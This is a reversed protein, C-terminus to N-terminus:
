SSTSQGEVILVVERAWDEDWYPSDQIEALRKKEWHRVNREWCAVKEDKVLSGLMSKERQVVKLIEAPSVVKLNNCMKAPLVGAMSLMAALRVRIRRLANRMQEQSAVPDGKLYRLIPSRVDERRVISETKSRRYMEEMVKHAVDALTVVCDLLEHFVNFIQTPYVRCPPFPPKEGLKRAIPEPLVDMAVPTPPAAGRVEKERTIAYGAQALCQSFETREKEALTSFVAVVQELLERPTLKRPPGEKEVQVVKTEAENWAPFYVKLAEVRETRDSGGFDQLSRRVEQRVTELRAIDSDDAWSAQIMKVRNATELAWLKLNGNPM